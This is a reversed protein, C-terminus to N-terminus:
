LPALLADVALAMLASILAVRTLGSHTKAAM